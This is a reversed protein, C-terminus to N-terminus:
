ALKVNGALSELRKEALGPLTDLVHLAGSGEVSLSASINGHLVARLPDFSRAYGALFGGCFSNGAGTLDSVRAPYAPIEWRKRTEREYLIQGLQGRKVIVFECGFSATAETMEWLNTTRGWFLYRLEEESPLFATIGQLLSRVNELKTKEMYSHSPDLTIVANGAQRFASSIRNATSFDMPCLHIARADLYDSPIKNPHPADLPSLRKDSFSNIPSIYGLLARPFPLGLRSFHSMPNHIDVKYADLCAHFSRQDISETLIHLGRIDWDHQNFLNLWDQLYDQGTCAVLGIGDEWINLGTAAYLLSGGPIDLLPRGTLPLIYERQLHGALIFRPDM